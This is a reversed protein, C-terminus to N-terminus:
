RLPHLLYPTIQPSIAQNAFCGGPRETIQDQTTSHCVLLLFSCEGILRGLELLGEGYTKRDELYAGIVPVMQKRPLM